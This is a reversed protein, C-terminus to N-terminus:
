PLIRPRLESIVADKWGDLKYGAPVYECIPSNKWCWTVIGSEATVQMEGDWAIEEASPIKGEIETIRKQCVREVTARIANGYEISLTSLQENIPTATM